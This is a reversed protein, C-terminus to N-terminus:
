SDIVNGLDNTNTQFFLRMHNSQSSRSLHHKTILFSDVMILAYKEYPVFKTNVASSMYWKITESPPKM